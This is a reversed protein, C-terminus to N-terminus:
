ASFIKAIVRTGTQIPKETTHWREGSSDQHVATIPAVLVAGSRATATLTGVLIGTRLPFSSHDLAIQFVPKGAVRSVERIETVTAQFEAIPPHEIASTVPTAM